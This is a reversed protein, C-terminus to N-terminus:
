GKFWRASSKLIRRFLKRNENTYGILIEPRNERLYELVAHVDALKKKPAHFRILKSCKLHLTYTVALHIGLFTKLTGHEYALKVDDIPVITFESKTLDLFYHKTIYMGNGFHKADEMEAVVEGVFRDIKFLSKERKIKAYLIKPSMWPMIVLLLNYAFLMAGYIFLAILAYLMVVYLTRNYGKETLVYDKTIEDVGEYTWDITNSFMELMNDFIGDAEAVKVLKNVDKLSNFNQGSGSSDFLYFLCTGNEILDYYYEGYVNEDRMYNYGSYIVEDVCLELYKHGNEVAEIAEETSYVVIPNIIEDFPIWKITIIAFLM